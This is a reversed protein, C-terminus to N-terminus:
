TNNMGVDVASALLMAVTFWLRMRENRTLALAISIGLLCASVTTATIWGNGLIFDMGMVWLQALAFMWFFRSLLQAVRKKADADGESDIQLLETILNTAFLLVAPGSIAFLFLIFSWDERKALVTGNWFMGLFTVLLILLWATGMWRARLSVFRSLLSGLTILCHGVGIGIISTFMLIVILTTSVDM